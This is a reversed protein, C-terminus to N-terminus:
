AARTPNSVAGYSNSKGSLEAQVQLARPADLKEMIVEVLQVMDTKAFTEDDLLTSLEEKTRVTYTRSIKEQPDGLVKLLGTWEWNSIDNYKRTKGHIYREITYGSNNLVFIIPKVEVRLM